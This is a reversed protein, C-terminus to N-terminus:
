KTAGPSLEQQNLQQTVPAEKADAQNDNRGGYPAKVNIPKGQDNVGPYHDASTGQPVSGLNASSGSDTAQPMSGTSDNTLAFASGTGGVVLAAVAAAGLFAKM